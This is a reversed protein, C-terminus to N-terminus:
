DEEDAKHFDFFTQIETLNQFGRERKM